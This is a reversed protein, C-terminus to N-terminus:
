AQLFTEGLLTQLKFPKGNKYYLRAVHGRVARTLESEGMGYLKAVETPTIEQNGQRGIVVVEDGVQAEQVESLDIRTHEVALFLIKVRKGRVLVEGKNVLPNPLGDGWGLPIVGLTMGERLCSPVKKDFPTNLSINKKRIIRTKLSKFAPKLDLNQRPNEPYYMGYVINGPDAANLYMDPYQSVIPSSACMNIPIHIGNNELETLMKEFKAFQWRVYDEESKCKSDTARFHCYIGEIQLNKFKLLQKCFNLAEEPAIGNRYLGVDVKVFIKLPKSDSAAEAYAKAYLLDDVTAMLDYKVIDSATSPLNNAYTLIPKTVKNQRLYIAESLDACAIGFVDSEEVVQGVEKTGFGYANCKLVAFFKVSPGLCRQIEKLNHDIADLDIEFLTPRLVQDESNFQGTM